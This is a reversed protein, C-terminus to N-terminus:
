KGVIVKYESNKLEFCEELNKSFHITKSDDIVVLGVDDGSFYEGLCGTGKIYILTSLLDTYWGSDGIVTVSLIDTEVPKGLNLDMIHSYKKGDVEFYREYGGSTSVFCESLTLIGVNEGKNEPDCVGVKFMEGSPKEGFLVLSSGFSASAWDEKNKEFERALVDCAYGKAVCGLDVNGQSLTVKNNDILLSEIDIKSLEKLIEEQSPINGGENVRWLDILGGATIDIECNCVCFEKALRLIEVTYDSANIEGMTNLKYIESNEDNRDFFGDLTQIIEKYEASNGKSSNISVSTDMSFFTVSDSNDRFVFSLIVFIGLFIVCIVTVAKPKAVSKNKEQSVEFNM